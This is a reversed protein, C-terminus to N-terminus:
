LPRRRELAVLRPKTHAQQRSMMSYFISKTQVQRVQMSRGTVRNVSYFYHTLVVATPMWYLIPWCYHRFAGTAVTFGRRGLSMIPWTGLRKFRLM